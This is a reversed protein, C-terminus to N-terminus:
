NKEQRYKRGEYWYKIKAADSEPMVGSAKVGYKKGEFYNFGTEDSDFAQGGNKKMEVKICDSNQRIPVEYRELEYWVGIYSDLNLNKM